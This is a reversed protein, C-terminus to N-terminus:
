NEDSAVYPMLRVNFLDEVEFWLKTIRQVTAFDRAPADNLRIQVIHQIVSVDLIKIEPAAEALRQRYVEVATAQLKTLNKKTSKLSM